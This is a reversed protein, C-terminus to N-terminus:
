TAARTAVPAPARTSGAPSGTATADNSCTSCASACVCSTAAPPIRPRTSCRSLYSRRWALCLEPTSLAEFTLPPPPSEAAPVVEPCGAARNGRAAPLGYRRRLWPWALPAALLLLTLIVIGSAPGLLRVVGTLVLGGACTAAGARLGTSRGPGTTAPVAGDRTDQRRLATAMAGVLVGAAVWGVVATAPGALGAIAGLVLGVAVAVTYRVRAFM